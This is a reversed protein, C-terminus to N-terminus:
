LKEQLNTEMKEWEGISLKINQKTNKILLKYFILIYEKGHKIFISRWDERPM